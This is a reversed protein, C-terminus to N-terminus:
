NIKKCSERIILEPKIILKKARKNNEPNRLMEILRKSALEGLIIKPQKITTLPVKLLSIFKINDYGIISYDQPVRLKLDLVAQMAGMALFDNAGMFATFGRNSKIVKETEYYSREANYLNPSIYSDDFYINHKKLTDKFARVREGASAVDAVKLFYIKKHGLGLLYETALIGGYYDDTTVFNIGKLKSHYSILVYPIKIKSNQLFEEKVPITSILLGDIGKNILMKIYREGKDQNYYTNCVIVNYGNKECEDTVGKSLAAYFPNEIDGLILGIMNSECTKLGRAFFNPEYGYKEIIELVKKRTEDKVYKENNLVRSITKQSLGAISAIEKTTMKEM